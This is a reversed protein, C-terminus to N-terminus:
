YFCELLASCRAALFEIQARSIARDLGELEDIRPDPLYLPNMLDWFRRVEDPVLTLSRRIYFHSDNAYFDAFDPPADEPAITSLWGPGLTAEPPRRRAPQGASRKPFEPLALGAGFAFSDVTQSIIAVSVIEIFEDEEIGSDRAQRYWRESLRGSDTILPHIVEIWSDALGGAYDHSGAEAHPSLAEKRRRCFGCNWAERAAAAIALRQAGDLWAGCEGLRRWAENLASRLDERLNLPAADFPNM